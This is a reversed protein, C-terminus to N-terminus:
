EQGQRIARPIAVLRVVFGLTMLVIPGVAMLFRSLGLDSSPTAFRASYHTVLQPVMFILTLSTAVGLLFYIPITEISAVASRHSRFLM